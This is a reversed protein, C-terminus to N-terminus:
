PDRRPKHLSECARTFVYPIVACGVAVAAAAGQAPAAAAAFATLLIFGGVVAGLLTIIWCIAIIANGFM